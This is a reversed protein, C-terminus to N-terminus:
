APLLVGEIGQFDRSSTSVKKLSSVSPFNFPVFASQVGKIGWGQATKNQTLILNNDGIKIYVIYGTSRRQGIPLTLQMYMITTWSEIWEERHKGGDDKPVARTHLAM